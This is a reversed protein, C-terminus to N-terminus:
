IRRRNKIEPLFDFCFTTLITVPKNKEKTTKKKEKAGREKQAKRIDKVFGEEEEEEEDKENDIYKDTLCLSEKEDKDSVFENANRKEDKKEGKGEKEGGVRIGQSAAYVAYNLPISQPEFVDRTASVSSSAFVGANSLRSKWLIALPIKVTVLPPLSFSSISSPSSISPSSHRLIKPPSGVFISTAYLQSHSLPSFPPSAFTSSATINQTHLQSSSLTSDFSHFTQQQYDEDDGGGERGRRRETVAQPLRTDFADIQSTCFEGNEKTKTKAKAEEMQVRVGREIRKGLSAASHMSLSSSSSFLSFPPPHSSSNSSSSSSSPSSCSSRNSSLPIQPIQVSDSIGDRAASLSTDTKDQGALSSGMCDSRPQASPFPPSCAAYPLSLKTPIQAPFRPYNATQTEQQKGLSEIFRREREAIPIAPAESGIPQLSASSVAHRAGALSFFGSLVRGVFSQLWKLKERDVPYNDYAGLFLKFRGELESCFSPACTKLNMHLLELQHSLFRINYDSYSELFHNTLTMSVSECIGIVQMLQPLFVLYNEIKGGGASSSGGLVTPFIGNIKWTRLGEERSSFGGGSTVLWSIDDSIDKKTLELKPEVKLNQKVRLYHLKLSLPFIEKFPQGSNICWYIGSDREREHSGEKLRHDYKRRPKPM